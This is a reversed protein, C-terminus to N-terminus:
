DTASARQAGAEAADQRLAAAGTAAAKCAASVPRFFKEASFVDMWLLFHSFACIKQSYLSFFRFFSKFLAWRSNYLPFLM